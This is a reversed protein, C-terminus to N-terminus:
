DAHRVIFVDYQPDESLPNGVSALPASVRGANESGLFLVSADVDAAVRRITRVVDIATTAVPDDNEVLESRYTANPAIDLVQQRLKRGIVGEDFTDAPDLWGRQRALEPSDPIVTLAVLEDGTYEAYQAARTLAARSLESGDFPVLLVM